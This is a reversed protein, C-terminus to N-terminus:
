PKASGRQAKRIARVVENRRASTQDILAQYSSLISAITFRHRIVDEVSGYRLIWNLNVENEDGVTDFSWSTGDELRVYRKGSSLIIANM